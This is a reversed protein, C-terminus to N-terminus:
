YIYLKDTSLFYVGIREKHFTTINMDYLKFVKNDENVCDVYLAGQIAIGAREIANNIKEPIGSKTM